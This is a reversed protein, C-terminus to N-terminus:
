KNIKQKKNAVTYVMNKKEGDCELDQEDRMKYVIRRLYSIDLDDMRKHIESM